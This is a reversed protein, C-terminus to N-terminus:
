PRVECDNLHFLFLQFHRCFQVFQKQEMKDLPSKPLQHVQLILVRDLRSQNLQCFIFIKNLCIKLYKIFINQWIQLLSYPAFHHCLYIFHESDPRKQLFCFYFFKKFFFLFCMLFILFDFFYCFILNKAIKKNFKHTKKSSKTLKKIKISFM